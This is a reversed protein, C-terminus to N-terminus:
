DLEEMLKLLANILDDKEIYFISVNENINLSCVSMKYQLDINLKYFFYKQNNYWIVSQDSIVSFSNLPISLGMGITKIYSEKMTWIEYFREIKDLENLNIYNYEEKTFFRDAIKLDIDAIKEIDIGIPNTDLACVVYCNSHSVNFYIEDSSDILPKGYDNYRFKIKDFKIDYIKHILYKALLNSFLSNQMDQTKKYKLISIKKEYDVLKLLKDIVNRDIDNNLRICYIYM